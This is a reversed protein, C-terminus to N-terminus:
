REVIEGNPLVEFFDDDEEQVPTKATGGTRLKGSTGAPMDEKAGILKDLDVDEVGASIEVTLLRELEDRAAPVYMLNVSDQELSGAVAAMEKMIERKMQAAKFRMNLKDRDAAANKQAGKKGRESPHLYKGGEGGEDDEAALSALHELEEVEALRQRAYISKTERKYEEDDLIMVRLRKDSIKCFDLALSDNNLKAYANICSQVLAKFYDPSDKDPLPISAYGDVKKKRPM